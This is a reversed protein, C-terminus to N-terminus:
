RADLEAQARARLAKKPHKQATEELYPRMPPGIDHRMFSVIRDDV